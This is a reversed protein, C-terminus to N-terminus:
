SNTKESMKRFMKCTWNALEDPNEKMGSQVWEIILGVLGYTYFKIDQSKKNEINMKILEELVSYLYQKFGYETNMSLANMYLYKENYMTKFMTKFAEDYDNTELKNVLPLFIENYYIWNMLEYKDQFHYYFTQRNLHCTNTIDSVSIKDFQKEKMLKKFSYIIAQKTITQEKM